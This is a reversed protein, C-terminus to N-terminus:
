QIEEKQAKKELQLLSLNERALFIMGATVIGILQLTHTLLVFSLSISKSVGLTTCALIGFYEFVGIFGPSSPISVGMAIVAMIFIAGFFTIEPIGMGKAIFFLVSANVLWVAISILITFFLHDTKKLIELGSIFAELLHETKEELKGPLFRLVKHLLTLTANRYYMLGYFILILVAFIIVGFLWIKKIIAPYPFIFFTIFLLILIALIDLIRELMITAIASTKSIKEKEGVILVRIIEGARMPLISNGFFGIFITSLLNIYKCKKIPSLLIKWRLSRLCFDGIFAFLAPILYLYNTQTLIDLTQKFDVKRVALYLFLISLPIGLLITIKKNRSNM